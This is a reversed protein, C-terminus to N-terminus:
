TVKWQALADRILSSIKKIAHNPSIQSRDEKCRAEAIIWFCDNCLEFVAQERGEVVLPAGGYIRGDCLDCKVSM